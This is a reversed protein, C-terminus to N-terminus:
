NTCGSFAYHMFSCSYKSLYNASPHSTTLSLVLSLLRYLCYSSPTPTPPPTNQPCHFCTLLATLSTQRDVYHIDTPPLTLLFYSLSLLAVFLFLSVHMPVYNLLTGRVTLLPCVADMFTSNLKIDICNTYLAHKSGSRRHFMSIPILYSLGRRENWGWCIM